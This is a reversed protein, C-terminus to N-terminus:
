FAVYIYVGLRKGHTTTGTRAGSANGTIQATPGVGITSFAGANYISGGAAGAYRDEYSHKHEQLQDDKFEGATYVDHEAIEYTANEGVGVLACERADPLKGDPFVEALEAYIETDFDSGDAYFCGEPVKDSFSTVVQGPTYKSEHLVIKTGPVLEGSKNAALMGTKTCFFYEGEKDKCWTGNKVTYTM